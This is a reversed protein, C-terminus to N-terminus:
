GTGSLALLAVYTAFAAPGLAIALPARQGGVVQWRLRKLGARDRLWTILLPLGRSAGYIAGCFVAFPWGPAVAVAIAVVWATAHRLPTFAGAGIMLGFAAGTAYRRRWQLWRTPVQLRREPLPAVRGVIQLASALAAIPAALLLLEVASLRLAERSALSVAGIAGACAAGGICAGLLYTLVPTLPPPAIGESDAARGVPWTFVDHM